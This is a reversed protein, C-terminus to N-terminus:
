ENAGEPVPPRSVPASESRDAADAAANAASEAASMVPRQILPKRPKQDSDPNYKKYVSKGEETESFFYNLLAGAVPAAVAGGGGANEIAVAVAIVPDDVPAVAIFMAHSLDSHPNQASGTKGGVPIGQVGARWGTGGPRVVAALAERIVDQAYQGVAIKNRVAPLNQYVLIGDKNREESLLRPKYIVKGNGMGGVMLALQLPTLVQQQGIALDM